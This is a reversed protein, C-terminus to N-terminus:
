SHQKIYHILKDATLPKSFFYGQFENCQFQRLTDLEEITEVGEAVVNLNLEHAMLVITKVIAEKRKNQNIDRM